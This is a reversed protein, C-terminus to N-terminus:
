CFISSQRHQCVQPEELLEDAEDDCVTTEVPKAIKVSPNWKGDYQAKIPASEKRPKELRESHSDMEDHTEAVFEREKEEVIEDQEEEQKNEKSKVISVDKNENQQLSKEKENGENKDTQLEGHNPNQPADSVRSMTNKAPPKRKIATPKNVTQLSESSSSKLRLSSVIVTWTKEASLVCVEQTKSEDM